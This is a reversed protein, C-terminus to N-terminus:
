PVDCQLPKKRPRHRGSGPGPRYKSFRAPLVAQRVALLFVGPLRRGDALSQFLQGLAEPFEEVVQGLGRGLRHRNGHPRPTRRGAAASASSRSRVYFRRGHSALPAAGLSADHQTQSPAVRGGHGIRHRRGQRRLCRDFRSRRLRPRHPCPAQLDAHAIEKKLTQPSSRRSAGVARQRTLEMM